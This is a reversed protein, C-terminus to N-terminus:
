AYPDETKRLARLGLVNKALVSEHRRGEQKKSTFVQAYTEPDPMWLFELAQNRTETANYYPIDYIAEKMNAPAPLEVGARTRREDGRLLRIDKRASLHAYARALDYNENDVGGMIYDFMLGVPVHTGRRDYLMHSSHDVFVLGDLDRELNAAWDTWPDPTTALRGKWLVETAEPYGLTRFLELEEHSLWTLDRLNGKSVAKGDLLQKRGAANVYGSSRGKPADLSSARLGGKKGNSTSKSSVERRFVFLDPELELLDLQTTTELVQTTSYNEITRAM